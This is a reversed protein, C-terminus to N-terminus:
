KAVKNLEDLDDAAQTFQAAAERLEASSVLMEPCQAFVCMFEHNDAKEIRFGTETRM